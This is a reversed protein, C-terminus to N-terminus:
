RWETIKPIQQYGSLRDLWTEFSIKFVPITGSRVEEEVYQAKGQCSM